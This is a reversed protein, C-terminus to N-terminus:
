TTWIRTFSNDYTPRVRSNLYSCLLVSMWHAKYVSNWNQLFIFIWCLKTTLLLWNEGNFVVHLSKLISFFPFRTFSNILNEFAGSLAWAFYHWFFLTSVQYVIWHQGFFGTHHEKGVMSAYRRLRPPLTSSRPRRQICRFFFICVLFNINFYGLGFPYFLLLSGLCVM